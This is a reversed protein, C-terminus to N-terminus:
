PREKALAELLAELVRGDVDVRDMHRVFDLAETGTINTVDVRLRELAEVLPGLARLARACWRLAEEDFDHKAQRDPERIRADAVAVLAGAVWGQAHEANM